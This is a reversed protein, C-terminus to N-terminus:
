VPAAPTITAVADALRREISFVRDLGTVEFIRLVRRDQTVVVLEGGLNQLREHYRLLVGLVTSDVFSVEALDLAVATGGLGVVGELAQELSPATYLDVEGTLTIIFSDGGLAATNVSFDLVSM